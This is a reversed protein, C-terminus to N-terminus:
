YKTHTLFLHKFPFSLLQNTITSSNHLESMRRSNEIMGSQAIGIKTHESDLIHFRAVRARDKAISKCTNM